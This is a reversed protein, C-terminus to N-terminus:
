ILVQPGLHISIRLCAKRKNYCLNILNNYLFSSLRTDRTKERNKRYFNQTFKLVNASSKWGGLDRMNWVSSVYIMRVGDEPIVKYATDKFTVTAPVKPELNYIITDGSFTSSRQKSGQVVTVETNEPVKINM